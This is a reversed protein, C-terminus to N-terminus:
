SLDIEAKTSKQVLYNVFASCAVLMFTAHEVDATSEEVMGHRIGDADSTYGYIKEFGGKLAPHMEVIGQKEVEKLADGLSRHRKGTILGCLSEVASISEKMSNRYDPSQKDGLLSAARQLHEGVPSLAGTLGMVSEVSTIEYSNTIPVLVSGVFRYGSLNLELVRNCEAVFANLDPRAHMTSTEMPANALTEIFEYVSNWGRETFAKYLFRVVDYWYVPLRHLPWGLHDKWLHRVWEPTSGAKFYVKDVSDVFHTHVVNWLDVRLRDDMSDIQVVVRSKEVGIRESFRAL